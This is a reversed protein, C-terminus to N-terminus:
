KKIEFPKLNEVPGGAGGVYPAPETHHGGPLGTNIPHGAQPDYLAESVDDFGRPDTGKELAISRSTRHSVKPGQHPM